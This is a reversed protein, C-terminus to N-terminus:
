RNIYGDFFKKFFLWQYEVANRWYEGTHAGPRIIYDHGIKRKLLEEHLHNNVQLFFDATGCDIILSLDGDKIKDLQNIVTYADWQTKNESLPGLLDKMEWNNPFPRIDVGGSMSGAAGFVDKHRIGLWLGGHGGMSFGTVARACRDAKTPYNKDIYSVLEKSIYTEFKSNEKQPSDWYWSNEGNPCVIITGDRDALTPLKPNIGLWSYCNGGYGHLLYLVPYKSDETIEEPAIVIVDLFCNMSTSKVQITDIHAARSIVPLLLVLLSALVIKKMSM